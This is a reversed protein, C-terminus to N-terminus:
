TEWESFSLRRCQDLCPTRARTRLDQVPEFRHRRAGRPRDHQQFPLGRRCGEAASGQWMMAARRIQERREREEAPRGPPHHQQSDLGGHERHVLTERRRHLRPDSIEARLYDDFQGRKAQDGGPASSRLRSRPSSRHHLAYMARAREREM